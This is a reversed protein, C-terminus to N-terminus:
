YQVHMLFLAHSPAAIGAKSRNKAAIIEPIQEPTFRGASLDILTGVLNRVMKYLFGDSTLELRLGGPQEVPEFRSLTRISDHAASNNLANNAFSTFDHTGLFLKTGTILLEKDIKEKIHHRYPFHIPDTVPDLHLHYHYTKQKVSYRAHFSDDVQELSFVRIDNPLLANISNLTKKTDTISYADFHAVQGKAHVGSDTRGSGQLYIPHRVVTEIANSLIAQISPGNSQVQWGCYNTGDYAIILKYRLYNLAPM